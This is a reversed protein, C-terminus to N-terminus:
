SVSPFNESVEEKLNSYNVPVPHKSNTHVEIVNEQPQIRKRRLNDDEPFEKMNNVNFLTKGNPDKYLYYLVPIGIISATIAAALISMFSTLGIKTDFHNVFGIVLVIFISFFSVSYIIFSIIFTYRQSKHTINRLHYALFISIIILAVKILLLIFLPADPGFKCFALRYLPPNVVDSKMIHSEYQIPKFVGWLAIVLTDISALLIPLLVLFRFRLFKRTKKDFRNLVWLAYLKLAKALVGGLILSCTVSALWVLVHCYLSCELSNSEFYAFKGDITLLVAFVLLPLNASLLFINMYPGSYTAPPYKKYVAVAIIIILIFIYVAVAFALITAPIFIFIHSYKNEVGDSSESDWYIFNSADTLSAKTLNEVQSLDSPLNVYLGRFHTETFSYELIQAQHTVRLGNEFDVDGTVSKFQEKHINDYLVYPLYRRNREPTYGENITQHLALGLAWMGDYMYLSTVDWIEDNFPPSDNLGYETALTATSRGSITYRSMSVLDEVRAYETFGITGKVSEQLNSLPCTTSHQWDSPSIEQAIFTFEEFNLSRNSIRCYFRNVTVGFANFLIIRYGASVITDIVSDIQENRKEEDSDFSITELISEIDLTYLATKLEYSLDIFYPQDSNVIAVRNWGHDQIFKIQALAATRGTPFGNIVDDYHYFKPAFASFTFLLVNYVTIINAISEISGLCPLGFVIPYSENEYHMFEVLSQYAYLRHCYTEKWEIVLNYDPLIDDRANIEKIALETLATSSNLFPHLPYLGAINIEKKCNAIYFTNCVILLSIIQLKLEMLIEFIQNKKATSKLSVVQSGFTNISLQTDFFLSM